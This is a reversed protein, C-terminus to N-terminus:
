LLPRVPPRDLKQAALRERVMREFHIRPMERSRCFAQIDSALLTVDCEKGAYRVHYTVPNFDATKQNCHLTKASLITLRASVVVSM